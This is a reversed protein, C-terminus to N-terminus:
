MASKLSASDRSIGYSRMKYTLTRVPIGLFEAARTVNGRTMRLGEEILQVEYRRVRDHFQDADRTLETGRSGRFVDLEKTEVPAQTSGADLEVRYRVRDPLDRPQVTEGDACIVAYDMVNRLERVNGPFRYDCLVCLAEPSLARAPRQWRE